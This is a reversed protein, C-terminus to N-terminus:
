NCTTCTRSTFECTLCESSCRTCQNRTTDTVFGSPCDNRCVGNHLFLNGQYGCLSCNTASGTCGLCPYSCEECVRTRTNFFKGTSCEEVCTGGQLKNLSITTFCSTCNSRQGTTCTNCPYDCLSNIILGDTVQDIYYFSTVSSVTVENFTKM